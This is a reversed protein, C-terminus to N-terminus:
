KTPALRNLEEFWNLVVVLSAPPGSSEADPDTIMLVQRGSADIDYTRGANLPSTYYGDKVLPSPPTATWSEGNQVQLRMLGGSPSVYVLEHTNRTWMPRSGGDTSVPWRGSNVEPYKRVFVEFRGSENAEYALWRGDPSVTGNREPFASHVLPTVQHSSDLAMEMVDERSAQSTETYIVSRGGPTVDTVFQPNGSETLRDVRTGDATALFINGVGNRQSTFV